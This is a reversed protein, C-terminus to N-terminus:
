WGLLRDLRRTRLQESATWLLTAIYAALAAPVPGLALASRAGPRLSIHCKGTASCVESGRCHRASLQQGGLGWVALRVGLKWRCNWQCAGFHVSDHPQKLAVQLAPSHWLRSGASLLLCVPVTQSVALRLLSTQAAFVWESAGYGSPGRLAGDAPPGMVIGLVCGGQVWGAIRKRVKDEWLSPDAGVMGDFCAVGFGQKSLARPIASGVAGICLVLQRQYFRASKLAAKFIARWRGQGGTWGRLPRTM